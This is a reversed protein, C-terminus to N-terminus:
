LTSTVTTLWLLSLFTMLRFGAEDPLIILLASLSSKNQLNSLPALDCGYTFPSSICFKWLSFYLEPTIYRLTM